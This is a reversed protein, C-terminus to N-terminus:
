SSRKKALTHAFSCVRPPLFRGILGNVSWFIGEVKAKLQIITEQQLLTRRRARLAEKEDEAQEEKRRVKGGARNSGPSKGESVIFGIRLHAM